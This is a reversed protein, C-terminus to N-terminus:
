GDRQRMQAQRDGIKGPGDCEEFPDARARIRSPFIERDDLQAIARAKLQGLRFAIDCGSIGELEIEPDLIDIRCPLFILGLPQVGGVDHAAIGAM